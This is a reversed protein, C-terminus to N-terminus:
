KFIWNFKSKVIAFICETDNWFGLTILQDYCVKIGNYEVVMNYLTTAIFPTDAEILKVRIEKSNYMFVKEAIM